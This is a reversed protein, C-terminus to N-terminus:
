SSSSRSMSFPEDRHVRERSLGLRGARTDTEETGRHHHQRDRQERRCRPRGVHLDKELIAKRIQEDHDLRIDAGPNDAISLGSHPTSALESTIPEFISQSGSAHAFDPVSSEKLLELFYHEPLCPDVRTRTLPPACMEKSMLIVASRQRDRGFFEDARRRLM